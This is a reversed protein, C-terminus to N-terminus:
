LIGRGRGRQPTSVPTSTSMLEKARRSEKDSQSTPVPSTQNPDQGWMTVMKERTILGTLKYKEVHRTVNNNTESCIMFVIFIASGRNEKCSM